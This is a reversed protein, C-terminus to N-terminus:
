YGAVVDSTIMADTDPFYYPTQSQGIFGLKMTAGYEETKSKPPSIKTYGRDCGSMASMTLLGLVFITSILKRM